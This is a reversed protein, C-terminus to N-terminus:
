TSTKLTERMKNDKKNEQCKNTSPFPDKQQINEWIKNKESHM